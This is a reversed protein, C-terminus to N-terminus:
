LNKFALYVFKRTSLAWFDFKQQEKLMKVDLFM